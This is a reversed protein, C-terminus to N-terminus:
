NGRSGLGSVVLVLSRQKHSFVLNRQRLKLAV